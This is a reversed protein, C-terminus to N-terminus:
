HKKSNIAINDNKVFYFFAFGMSGVTAQVIFMTVITFYAALPMIKSM